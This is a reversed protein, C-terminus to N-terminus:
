AAAELLVFALEEDFTDPPVLTLVATLISSGSTALELQRVREKKAPTWDPRRAHARRAYGPIPLTGGLSQFEAGMSSSGSTAGDIPIHAGALQVNVDAAGTTASGLVRIAALTAAAAAVGASAAAIIGIKNLQAGLSSAGQTIASLSELDILVAALNSRGTTAAFVVGIKLLAAQVSSSGITGVVGLSGVDVVTAGVTSSGSTAFPDM